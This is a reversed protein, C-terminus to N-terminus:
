WVIVIVYVVMSVVWCKDSEIHFCLPGPFKIMDTVDLILVLEIMKMVYVGNSTLKLRLLRESKEDHAFPRLLLTKYGLTFTLASTLM